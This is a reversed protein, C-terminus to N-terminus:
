VEVSMIVVSFTAMVTVTIVMVQVMVSVVSILHNAEEV